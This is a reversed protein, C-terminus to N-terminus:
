LELLQSLPVDALSPRKPEPQKEVVALRPRERGTYTVAAPEPLRAPMTMAARLANRQETVEALREMAAAQRLTALVLPNCRHPQYPNYDDPEFLRGTAANGQWATVSSACRPCPLTSAFDLSM